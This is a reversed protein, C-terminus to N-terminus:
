RRSRRRIRTLAGVGLGITMLALASPEPTDTVFVHSSGTAPTWTQGGDLSLDTFIDFFSDIRFGGPDTSINTQGLSPNTPDIRFQSGPPLGTTGGGTIDLQTMQTDYTGIPSGNPGGNKHVIVNVQAPADFHTPAGGNIKYDGDVTSGFGHSTTDNVNQPPPFSNSFFRHKINIVEISLAGANYLQHAQAPTVYQSGQPPLNPSARVVQADATLTPGCLALVFCLGALKLSKM